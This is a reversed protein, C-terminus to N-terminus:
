HRLAHAAETTPAQPHDPRLTITAEVSLRSVSGDAHRLRLLGGPEVAEALGTLPGSATEVAVTRGLTVCRRSWEDLLWGAGEDYLRGYGRDFRALFEALLASRDCPRGLEIEISTAVARLADPLARVPWNVNLGVGVVALVTDGGASRAEVLIGGAKRDNLLLDNPWKLRPSLGTHSEIADRAAVAALFPLGTLVPQPFPGRLLISLYLNRGSPSEWRRGQRGRGARQAEAVIVTGDPAGATAADFASGNTSDVIEELDIRSGIRRLPPVPSPIKLPIAGRSRSM